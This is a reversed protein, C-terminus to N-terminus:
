DFASVLVIKDDVIRFSDILHGDIRGESPESAMRTM